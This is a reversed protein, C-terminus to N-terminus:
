RMRFTVPLTVQVPVTEGDMRAPEFRMERVVRVSEIDLLPHVPQVVHVRTPVGEKSVVCRVSVIGSIEKKKAERPYRVADQLAMLGGIMKPPRDVPGRPPQEASGTSAGSAEAAAIRGFVPNNDEGLEFRVPVRVQALVPTDGDSGPTFTMERVVRRAEQDLVDHIGQVVDVRTAEGDPRVLARVVVTGQVRAAQAIEPYTLEQYLADEGGVMEPPNEVDAPVSSFAGDPESGACSTAVFLLTSLVGFQLLLRLRFSIGYVVRRHAHM